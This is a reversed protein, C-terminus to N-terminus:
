TQKPSSNTQALSTVMWVWLNVIPNFHNHNAPQISNIQTNVVAPTRISLLNNLNFCSTPAGLDKTYELTTNDSILSEYEDRTNIRLLGITHKVVSCM